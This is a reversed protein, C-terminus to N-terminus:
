KMAKEAFSTNVITSYQPRADLEGALEMVEMLRNLSEEKLVPDQCWADIDKYRQVVTTLDEIPTEKFHPAIIEAITKADNQQVFQQGKYTADTFRQIVDTNKDMYSKLTCYATYPIEGTLEGVSAMIYGLGQKEMATALPEFLTVFEGEGGSFAGGMVNFQVDTRVNVEGAAVNEGITLGANKIAYELTMEPVGGKRGGLVEKGALDTLKFNDNPDKGVIFSGDRKTLQAFSIAYDKQGQNYVYISAEPGMLGIQVESSLLAAMTKDAGQTNLLEVELGQEQYFGKEMAVYQPAYFVSHTVEAVKIKQIGKTGQSCGVGMVSLTIILLMTLIYRVKRM